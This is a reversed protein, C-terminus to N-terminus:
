DKWSRLLKLEELAERVFRMEYYSDFPKPELGYEKCYYEIKKRYLSMDTCVCWDNHIVDYCAAATDRDVFTNHRLFVDLTEEKNMRVFETGRMLARVVAKCVDPHKEIVDRTTVLGDDPWQVLDRASILKTCGMKIAMVWHPPGASVGDVEGRALADIRSRETDPPVEESATWVVDKDPDVGYHRLAIRADIYSAGRLSAILKKGKLGAGETIGPRSLLHHGPHDQISIVNTLQTKGERHTNFPPSGGPAQFVPQNPFKTEWGTSMHFPIDTFVFNVKIGEEQFFGKDMAVWHACVNMTFAPATMVIEQLAM